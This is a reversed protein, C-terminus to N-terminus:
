QHLNKQYVEEQVFYQMILAMEFSSEKLEYVIYDKNLFKVTSGASKKSSFLIYTVNPFNKEELVKLATRGVVGTAGVVAVKYKKNM